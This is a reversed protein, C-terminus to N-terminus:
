PSMAGKPVKRIVTLFAKIQPFQSHRIPPCGRARGPTLWTVSSRNRAWGAAPSYHVASKTTQTPLADTTFTMITPPPIPPSVVARMSCARPMSQSSNSCASPDALEADADVRQRMGDLLQLLEAQHLPEVGDRDAGVLQDVGVAETLLDPALRAADIGAIVHRLEGDMAAPQLAHDVLRHARPEAFAAQVGAVPEAAEFLVLAADGGIEEVAVARVAAGSVAVHQDAGVADVGM